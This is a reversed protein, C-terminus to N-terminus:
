TYGTDVLRLESEINDISEMDETDIHWDFVQMNEILHQKSSAKPIIIHGKQLLWRLSVQAATKNHKEAIGRITANDFVKGRALPSYATITIKHRRCFDELAARKTFPHYEIQLNSIPVRSVSIAKQTLTVGYNSLGISRTMGQDVLQNMADLTEVLAIRQNPWHALFLDLYDTRLKELSRTCADLVDQPALHPGSVKSTIFIDERDFAALAKGIRDENEYAEATDIHRYGMDIAM